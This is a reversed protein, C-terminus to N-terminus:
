DTISFERLVQLCWKNIRQESLEFENEEDLALGVFHEGTATLAQSETFDYGENPWHGVTKGGLNVVLSHLYGMADQFWEPYGIQDGLGFIAVHKGQFTLESLAQWQHEWDEQLEGYDWTPIGLILYEYNNMATVSAQALNYLEVEIKTNQSFWDRIKEATIETYCTSSGFFLGIRIPPQNM